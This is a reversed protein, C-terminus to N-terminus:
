LIGNAALRRTSSRRVLLSGQPRRPHAIGRCTGSVTLYETSQWKAVISHTAWSLLLLVGALFVPPAVLALVELVPSKPKGAGTKPSRASFIGATVTFLWGGPLVWKLVANLTAHSGAQQFLFQMFLPEVCRSSCCSDPLCDSPSSFGASGESGNGSPTPFYTEWSELRSSPFSLSLRLGHLFDSSPTGTASGSLPIIVLWKRMWYLCLVMFAWSVIEGVVLWIWYQSPRMDVPKLIRATQTLSSKALVIFIFALALASFFLAPSIVHRYFDHSFIQVLVPTAVLPRHGRSPRRFHRASRAVWKRSSTSERSVRWRVCPAPSCADWALACYAQASGASSCLTIERERGCSKRRSAPYGLARRRRRLGALAPQSASEQSVTRHRHVYRRLCRKRRSIPPTTM